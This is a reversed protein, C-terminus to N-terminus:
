EAKLESIKALLHSAQNKYDGDQTVLITLLKTAKEVENIKLYANALHWYVNESLLQKNQKQCLAAASELHKIGKKFESQMLYSVGLYFHGYADDKKRRVFTDLKQIALRYNREQYYKMGQDYLIQPSSFEDALGRMKGGVYSASEIIALKSFDKRIPQAFLVILLVAAAVPVLVRIAPIKVWGQILELVNKSWHSIENLMSNFAETVVKFISKRPQVAGLFFEPEQEIITSVESLRYVEEFCADCDLLHDEVCLKEDEGLLNFQYLSVLQRMKPDSCKM